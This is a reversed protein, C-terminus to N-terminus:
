RIFRFQKNLGNESSIHAVYCGKSLNSIDLIQSGKMKSTQIMQGSLAYLNLDWVVEEDAKVVLTNECSLWLSIDNTIEPLDLPTEPQPPDQFKVRFFFKRHPLDRRQIKFLCPNRIVGKQSIDYNIFAYYGEHTIPFLTGELVSVLSNINASDMIYPCMGDAIWYASYMLSDGHPLTIEYILSDTWTTSDKQFGGYYVPQDLIFGNVSFHDDPISNSGSDHFLQIAASCVGKKEQDQSFTRLSSFVCVIILLKKM